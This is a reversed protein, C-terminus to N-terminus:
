VFYKNVIKNFLKKGKEGFDKQWEKKIQQLEEQEIFEKNWKKQIKGLQILLKARSILKLKRYKGDEKIRNKNNEAVKFWLQKFEKIDKLYTQGNKLLNELTKDKNVKPCIYCGYRESKKYVNFLDKYLELNIEQEFVGIKEWVEATELNQILLYNDVYKKGTIKYIKDKVQKQKYKKILKARNKSEEIRQGSIVLIKAGRKKQKKISTYFSEAVSQKLKYSCSSKITNISYGRGIAQVYMRNFLKPELVKIKININEKKFYKELEKIKKFMYKEYIQFELKGDNLILFIDKDKFDEKFRKYSLLFLLLVLSSDKGASYAIVIDTYDRCNDKIEKTIRDYFERKETLEQEYIEELEQMLEREM